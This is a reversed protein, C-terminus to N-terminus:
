HVDLGAWGDPAFLDGNMGGNAGAGGGGSKGRSAPTLGLEAALRRSETQAQFLTQYAPHRRIIGTPTKVTEGDQAIQKQSRRVMGIALTYSELTALNDSTLTQRSVLVPAVREWEARAEETLWDPAPPAEKLAEHFHAQPNGKRGRM